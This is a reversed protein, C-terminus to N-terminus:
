FLLWLTHGETMGLSPKCEYQYSCPDPLSYFFSNEAKYYKNANLTEHSYIVVLSDLQMTYNDKM